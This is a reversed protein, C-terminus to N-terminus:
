AVRQLHTNPIFVPRSLGLDCSCRKFEVSKVEVVKNKFNEISGNHRRVCLPKIIQVLDGKRFGRM